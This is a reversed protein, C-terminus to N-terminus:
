NNMALVCICFIKCTLRTDQSRTLSMLELLKEQQNRPVIMDDKFLPWKIEEKIFQIGKKKGSQMVLVELIFDPTNLTSMM